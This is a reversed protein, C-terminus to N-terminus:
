NMEFEGVPVAEAEAARLVLKRKYRRCSIVAGFVVYSAFYLPLVYCMAWLVSRIGDTGTANAFFAASDAALTRFVSTVDFFVSLGAVALIHLMSVAGYGAISAPAMSFAAIVGVGFPVILVPTGFVAYLGFVVRIGVAVAASWLIIKLIYRVLKM